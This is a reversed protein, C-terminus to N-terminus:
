EVSSNLACLHFRRKADQPAKEFIRITVPGARMDGILHGHLGARERANLNRWKAIDFDGFLIGRPDGRQMRGVSFGATELFTEAAHMAEFDGPQDFTKVLDAM